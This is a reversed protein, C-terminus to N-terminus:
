GPYQGTARTAHVGAFQGLAIVHLGRDELSVVLHPHELLLDEPRHYRHRLELGLIIREGDRVVRQVAKARAQPAAVGVRAVPHTARDLRSPHPGVAIVQVRRVGREAAVLLRADPALVMAHHHIVVLLRLVHEDAVAGLFKAEELWSTTARTPIVGSAIVTSRWSLAACPSRINWWDAPQQSPLEGM